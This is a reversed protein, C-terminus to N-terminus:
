YKEVPINFGIRLDKALPSNGCRSSCRNRGCAEIAQTEELGTIKFAQLTGSSISWM